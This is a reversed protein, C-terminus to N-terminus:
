GSNIQYPVQSTPSLSASRPKSSPASTTVADSSLLYGPNAKSCLYVPYCHDHQRDRSPECSRVSYGRAPEVTRVLVRRRARASAGPHRRQTYTHHDRV